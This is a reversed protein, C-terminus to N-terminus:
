FSTVQRASWFGNYMLTTMYAESTASDDKVQVINLYLFCMCCYLLATNPLRECNDSNRTCSSTELSGWGAYYKYGYM